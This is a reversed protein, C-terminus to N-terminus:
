KRIKNITLCTSTVQSQNREIKNNQESLRGYQNEDSKNHVEFLHKDIQFIIYIYIYKYIYIYIYIM